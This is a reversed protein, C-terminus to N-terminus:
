RGAGCSPCYVRGLLHDTRLRWTHGCKMCRVRVSERSGVYSSIDVALVGGSRDSVKEAFGQARKSLAQKPTLRQRVPRSADVSSRGSRARVRDPHCKPCVCKGSRIRPYTEEWESGCEKCRVKVPSHSDEYFVIEIKEKELTDSLSQIAKDRRVNPKEGPYTKVRKIVLKVSPINDDNWEMGLLYTERGNAEYFLQEACREPECSYTKIELIAKDSSLDCLALIGLDDNVVLEQSTIQAEHFVEDKIFKVLPGLQSRAQEIMANLERECDKDRERTAVVTGDDKFTMPVYSIYSPMYGLFENKRSNDVLFRKNDAETAETMTNILNEVVIGSFNTPFRKIDGGEIELSFVEEADCCIYPREVIRSLNKYTQLYSVPLIYGPNLVALRWMGREPFSDLVIRVLLYRGDLKKFLEWELLCDRMGNHVESVGEIGFFTCLNDKTLSGDSYGSSCIQQKFNYFRMREFGSLKHRAFYDRVFRFDLSGYHLITRRDLEFTQLIDDVEAQTLHEKGNLDRKTIGNIDTTYVNRNLDLPLFRDYRRGDDPKFLSISLLDDEKSKLGNTEVDLVVYDSPSASIVPLGM